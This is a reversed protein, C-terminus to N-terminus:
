KFTDAAKKKKKWEKVKSEINKASLIREVEKVVEYDLYKVAPSMTIFENSSDTLKPSEFTLQHRTTNQSFFGVTFSKGGSVFHFDDGRRFSMECEITGINKELKVGEKKAKVRWDKYKAIYELLNDKQESTLWVISTGRVEEFLLIYKKSETLYNVVMDRPFMKKWVDNFINVKTIGITIENDQEDAFAPYGLCLGFLLLVVFKKM